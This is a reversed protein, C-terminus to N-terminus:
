QALKPIRFCRDRRKEYRISKGCARQVEADITLTLDEGAEAPKEGLFSVVRGPVM